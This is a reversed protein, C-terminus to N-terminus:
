GFDVEWHEIAVAVTVGGCITKPVLLREAGLMAARECVCGVGTVSAVFGSDSFSGPVAALAQASYFQAPLRLTRCAALLGPEDKKLDISYVGAAARLDLAHDAFVQRIASVVAEECIGRRCGIGVRLVRPTLRLTEAFPEKTCYGIVIGLAGQTKEVIGGPLAGKIPFDSVLPVDHELIEAAVKKALPMSSIACGNKAAWADAAFKGNVDTATTIVASAGLAAALRRALDNAGGIHGSLLPIVFQMKEDICLVAPDTKKSVLYPAIERVAIGCAGIFILADMSSFRERYIDKALPLFGAEELRPVAYCVTEAEALVARVRRAAACGGHSYAFIAIKM